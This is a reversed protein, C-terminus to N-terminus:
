TSTRFTHGKAELRRREERFNYIEGNFVVAIRGCSSWMPQDGRPSLDVLALRVMGCAGGVFKHMGSGDPGRHHMARLMSQLRLEAPVNGSYNWIGAIGCM